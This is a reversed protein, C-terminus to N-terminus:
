DADFVLIMGVPWGGLRIWNSLKKEDFPIREPSPCILVAIKHEVLLDIFTENTLRLGKYEIPVPHNRNFLINRLSMERSLCDEYTRPGLGPGLSNQVEKSCDIIETALAETQAGSLDGLMHILPARMQNSLFDEFVRNEPEANLTRLKTLWRRAGSYDGLKYDNIAKQKATKVQDEISLLLGLDTGCRYCIPDGKFRARCTPCREM